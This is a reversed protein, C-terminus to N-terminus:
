YNITYVRTFNKDELVKIYITPFKTGVKSGNNFAGDGYTCEVFYTEGPRFIGNKLSMTFSLNGLSTSMHASAVTGINKGNTDLTTTELWNFYQTPDWDHAGEPILNTFFNIQTVSSAVTPPPPLTSPFTASPVKTFNSAYPCATLSSLTYFYTVSPM